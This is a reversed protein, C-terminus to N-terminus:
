NALLCTLVETGIGGRQREPSVFFQQLVIESPTETAQLWGVDRGDACVVQADQV